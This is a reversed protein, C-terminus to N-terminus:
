GNKMGELATKIDRTNENAKSMKERLMAMDDNLVDGVAEKLLYPLKQALMEQHHEIRVLTKAIGQLYYVLAAMILGQGMQIWGTVAPEM